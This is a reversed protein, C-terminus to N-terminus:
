MLDEKNDSGNEIEWKDANREGGPFRYIPDGAFDLECFTGIYGDATKVYKPFNKVILQRRM